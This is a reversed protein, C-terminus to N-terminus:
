IGYTFNEEEQFQSKIYVPRAAALPINKKAEEDLLAIDFSQNGAPSYVQPTQIGGLGDALQPVRERAYQFWQVVDLFKNERLSAGKIGELLSYTLM